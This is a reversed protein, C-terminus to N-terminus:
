GYRGVTVKKNWELPILSEIGETPFGFTRWRQGFFLVEKDEWDHNDGKPIALTYVAVKGTLDLQNVKEDTSTPRVLVNEVKIERDEFVSHGFDDQGTKVKDILTVTIGKIRGM